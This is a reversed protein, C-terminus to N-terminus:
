VVLFVQNGLADAEQPDDSRHSHSPVPIEGTNDQSDKGRQQLNRGSTGGKSKSLPILPRMRAWSLPAVARTLRRLVLNWWNWPNSKTNWDPLSLTGPTPLGLFLYYEKSPVPRESFKSYRRGNVLAASAHSSLGYMTQFKFKGIVSGYAPNVFKVEVGEKYARRLIAERLSSYPLAHLYRARTSSTKGIKAKLKQFDLDELILYKKKKKAWAVVEIAVREVEAERQNANLGYFHYNIRRNQKRGLYNGHHNINVLSIHDENLDSGIVGFEDSTVSKGPSVGTAAYIKWRGKKDEIFRYFIAQGLDQYPEQAAKAYLKREDIDWPDEFSSIPKSLIDKVDKDLISLIQSKAAKRKQCSDLATLIAQHGYAWKIKPIVLKEQQYKEVLTPPLTVTLAITGDFNDEAQCVQNGATEDKSGLQSFNSSRAHQWLEKWEQHDKIGNEVLYFQSRFLKNTGFTLKQVDNEIDAELKALKRTLRNIEETKWFLAQPDEAKKLAKTTKLIRKELNAVDKENLPKIGSTLKQNLEELLIKLEGAKALTQVKEMAQSTKLIKKEVSDLDKKSLPKFPESRVLLLKELTTKLEYVRGSGHANDRIMEKKAIKEQLQFLDLKQRAQIAKRDAKVRYLYSNYNRGLIGFIKLSENKALPEKAQLGAWLSHEVKSALIAWDKLIAADRPSIDLWTHYTFQLPEEETMEKEEETTIELSSM